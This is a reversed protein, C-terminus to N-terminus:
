GTLGVGESFGLPVMVDFPEYGVVTVSLGGNAAVRTLADHEVDLPATTLTEGDVIVVLM